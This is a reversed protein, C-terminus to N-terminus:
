KLPTAAAWRQDFSATLSDLLDGAYQRPVSVVFSERAGIDKIGHGLILLSQDTLIYRDHLEQSAPYIRMATTPRERAFDTAARTFKAQDDSPRATLFRVECAEPILELSDLSKIGYFPDCVRVIGSAGRLLDALTRRGTRPTGAEIYSVMIGDASLLPKVERRGPTM